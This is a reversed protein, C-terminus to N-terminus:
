AFVPIIAPEGGSVAMSRRPVNHVSGIASIRQRIFPQSAADHTYLFRKQQDDPSGGDVNIAYDITCVRVARLPLLAAAAAM